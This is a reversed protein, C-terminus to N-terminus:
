VQREIPEDLWNEYAEVYAESTLEYGNTWSYHVKMSEFVSDPTGNSIKLQEIAILTNVDHKVPKVTAKPKESELPYVASNQDENAM